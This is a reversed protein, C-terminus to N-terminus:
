GAAPQLVGPPPIAGPGTASCRSPASSLGPAPMPPPEPFSPPGDLDLMDMLNSANADRATIAPLNWQTEILRLISTHDHVVSSVYGRRAFPSIV